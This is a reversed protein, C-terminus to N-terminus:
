GSRLIGTRRRAAWSTPCIPWRGSPKWPTIRGSGVRLSLYHPRDPSVGDRSRALLPATRRRYADLLVAAPQDGGDLGLDMAQTTREIAEQTSLGSTGLVSLMGARACEEQMIVGLRRYEAANLAYFEGSSGAMVIGAAGLAGLKRINERVADEDLLLSQPTFPTPPYAFVGRYNERTLMPPSIIEFWSGRDRARHQDAGSLDARPGQRRLTGQGTRSTSSGATGRVACCM